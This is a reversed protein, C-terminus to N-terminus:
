FYVRIFLLFLPCVRVVFWNAVLYTNGFLTLFFFRTARLCLQERCRENSLPSVATLWYYQSLCVVECLGPKQNPGAFDCRCHDVFASM